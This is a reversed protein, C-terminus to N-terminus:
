KMNVWKFKATSLLNIWLIVYQRETISVINWDDNMYNWIWTYESREGLLTTNYNHRNENCGIPTLVPELVERIWWYVYETDYLIYEGEM